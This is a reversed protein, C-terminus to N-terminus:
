SPPVALMVNAPGQATLERVAFPVTCTYRRVSRALRLRLPHEYISSPLSFSAPPTFLVGGAGLRSQRGLDCMPLTCVNVSINGTHTLQRAPSASSSQVAPASCRAYSPGATGSDTANVFAGAHLRVLRM